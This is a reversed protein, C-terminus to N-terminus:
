KAAIYTQYDVMSNLHKDMSRNKAQFPKRPMLLRLGSESDIIEYWSSLDDAVSAIPTAHGEIPNPNSSSHTIWLIAIIAIAVLVLTAFVKNMLDSLSQILIYFLYRYLQLSFKDEGAGAGARFFTNIKVANKRAPAPARAPTHIDISLFSCGCSVRTVFLKPLTYSIM